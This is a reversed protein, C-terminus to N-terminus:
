IQGGPGTPGTATIIEGTAKVKFNNTFLQDLTSFTTGKIAALLYPLTGQRSHFLHLSMLRTRKQELTITAPTKAALSKEWITVQKKAWSLNAPHYDMEKDVMNSIDKGTKNQMKGLCEAKTRNQGHFMFDLLRSIAKTSINRSGPHAPKKWEKELEAVSCPPPGPQHIVKQFTLYGQQTPHNDKELSSDSDSSLNIKSNQQKPQAETTQNPSDDGGSSVDSDSDPEKSLDEIPKAQPDTEKQSGNVPPNRKLALDPFKTDIAKLLKKVVQQDIDTFNCTSLPDMSGLEYGNNMAMIIEKVGEDSHAYLLLNPQQERTYTGTFADRDESMSPSEMEYAIEFQKSIFSPFWFATSEISNRRNIMTLQFALTSPQHVPTELSNAQFSHLWNYYLDDDDPHQHLVEDMMDDIIIHKNTDDSEQWQWLATTLALSSNSQDDDENDEMGLGRLEQYPGSDEQSQGASAISAELISGQDEDIEQMLDDDEQHNDRLPEEYNIMDDPLTEEAISAERVSQLTSSDQLSDAAVSAPYISEEAKHSEERNHTRETSASGEDNTATALASSEAISARHVSGTTTESAFSAAHVSESTGSGGEISQQMQSPHRSRGKNTVFSMDVIPCDHEEDYVESIGVEGRLHEAVPYAEM